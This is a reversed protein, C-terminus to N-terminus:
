TYKASVTFTEAATTKTAATSSVAWVIGNAFGRGALQDRPSTLDLAFASLPGVYIPAMLPAAGDVPVAAMDFVQFWRGTTASTNVGWVQWLRGSSGKIVGSSAPAVLDIWSADGNAPASGGSPTAAAVGDFTVLQVAAPNGPIPGPAAGGGPMLIAGEWRMCGRGAASVRVAGSVDAILLESELTRAEQECAYLRLRAGVYAADGGCTLYLDANPHGAGSALVQERPILPQGEIRVLARRRDIQRELAGMFERFSAM